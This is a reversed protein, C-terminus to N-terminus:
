PDRDDELFYDQHGLSFGTDGINSFYCDPILAEIEVKFSVQVAKLPTIQIFIIANYTGELGITLEDKRSELMIKEKEEDFYLISSPLKSKLSVPPPPCHGNEILGASDTLSLDQTAVETSWERVKM